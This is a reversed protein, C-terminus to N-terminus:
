PPDILARKYKEPYFGHQAPDAIQFFDRSLNVHHDDDPLYEGVVHGGARWVARCLEAYLAKASEPAIVQVVDGPEIGAGGGLAFNVLLDAYREIYAQPVEYPMRTRGGNELPRRGEITRSADRPRRRARAPGACAGRAGSEM